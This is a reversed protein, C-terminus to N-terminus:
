VPPGPSPCPWASRDPAPRRIARTPGARRDLSDTSGTAGMGDGSVRFAVHRRSPRQDPDHVQRICPGHRSRGARGPSDVDGPDPSEAGPHAVRDLATASAMARARLRYVTSLPPPGFALAGLIPNLRPM